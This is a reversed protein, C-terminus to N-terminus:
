KPGMKREPPSATVSRIYRRARSARLVPTGVPIPNLSPRRLGEPGEGVHPKPAYGESFNKTTVHLDTCKSANKADVM